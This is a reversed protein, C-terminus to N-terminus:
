RAVAEGLLGKCQNVLACLETRLATMTQETPQQDKLEGKLQQASDVVRDVRNDLERRVEGGLHSAAEGALWTIGGSLTTLAQAGGIQTLAKENREFRIRLNEMVARARDRRARDAANAEEILAVLEARTDAHLTAVGSTRFEWRERTAYWRAGAGLSRFTHWGYIGSIQRHIIV